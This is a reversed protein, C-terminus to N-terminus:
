MITVCNFSVSIFPIVNYAYIVIFDVKKSSRRSMM